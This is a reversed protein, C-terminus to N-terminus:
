SLLGYGNKSWASIDMWCPRGFPSMWSRTEPRSQECVWFSCFGVPWSSRSKLSCTKSMFSAKYEKPYADGSEVFSLLTVSIKRPLSRWLSSIEWELYVIPQVIMAMYLSSFTVTSVAVASSGTFHLFEYWVDEPWGWRILEEDVFVSLFICVRLLRIRILFKLLLWINYPIMWQISSVLVPSNFQLAM